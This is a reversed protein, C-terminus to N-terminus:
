ALGDSGHAREMAQHRAEDGLSAPPPSTYDLSRTYRGREYATAFSIGPAGNARFLNAAPLMVFEGIAHHIANSALPERTKEFARETTWNGHKEDEGGAREHQLM